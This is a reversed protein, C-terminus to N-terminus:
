AQHSVEREKAGRPRHGAGLVQELMLACADEDVAAQKLTELFKAEAVPVRKGDRGLGNVRDHEGM